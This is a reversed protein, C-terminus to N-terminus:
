NESSDEAMQTGVGFLKRASSDAWIESDNIDPEVINITVNVEGTTNLEEPIRRQVLALAVKLKNTESFRNFNNELYSYCKKLLVSKAKQEDWTIASKRGGKNKIEVKSLHNYQM